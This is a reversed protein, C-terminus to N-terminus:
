RKLGRTLDNIRLMKDRCNVPYNSDNALPICVAYDVYLDLGAPVNTVQIDYNSTGSAHLYLWGIEWTQGAAFTYTTDLIDTASGNVEVELYCTAGPVAATSYIRFGIAYM